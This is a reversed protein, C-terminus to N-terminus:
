VDNFLYFIFLILKLSFKKFLIELFVVETFRTIMEDIKDPMQNVYDVYKVKNKIKECKKQIKLHNRKAKSNFLWSLFLSNNFKMKIYDIFDENDKEGMLKNEKEILRIETFAVGMISLFINLLFFVIWVNYFAFIIPGLYPNADILSKIDFKGVMIQFSTEM